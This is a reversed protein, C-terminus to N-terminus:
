KKKHLKFLFEDTMLNNAKIISVWVLLFDCHALITESSANINQGLKNKHQLVM